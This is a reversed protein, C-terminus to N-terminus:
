PKRRFLRSILGRRPPATNAPTAAEQSGGNDLGQMQARVQAVVSRSTEADQQWRRDHRRRDADAHVEPQRHDDIRADSRPPIGTLAPM